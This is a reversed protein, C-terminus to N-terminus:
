SLVICFLLLEALDQKMGNSSLYEVTFFRYRFLANILLTFTKKECPARPPYPCDLKVSSSSTLLM